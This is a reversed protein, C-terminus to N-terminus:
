WVMRNKRLNAIILNVAEPNIKYDNGSKEILRSNVLRYIIQILNIDPGAIQLLEDYSVSDMSIIISLVFSEDLDPTKAPPLEPIRSLRIENDKLSKTWIKQAVDYKGGALKTIKQFVETQTEEMTKVNKEKTLAKFNFKIIRIDMKKQSFPVNIKCKELTCFKEIESLDRDDIFTIKENINSMTLNMLSKSDLEPVIIKVPFLNEIDSIENLYNWAFKNWGTLFLKETSSIKDLFAEIVDFGGYQRTYLYQCNRLLIINKPTYFNSFFDKERMPSFLKINSINQSNDGMIKDLIYDIGSFPESIVAIHNPYGTEFNDIENQIKKIENEFISIINGAKSNSAVKDM